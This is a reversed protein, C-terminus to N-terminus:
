GKILNLKENGFEEYYLEIMLNGIICCYFQRNYKKINKECKSNVNGRKKGVLKCKM